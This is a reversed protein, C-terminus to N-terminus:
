RSLKTQAGLASVLRQLPAGLYGAERPHFYGVTSVEPVPMRISLAAYIDRFRLIPRFRIHQKQVNERERNPNNRNPQSSGSSRSGVGVGVGVEIGEGVGAGIKVGVMGGLVVGKRVGDTVTVGVGEGIELGETLALGV